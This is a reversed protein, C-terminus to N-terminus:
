HNTNAIYSDQIRGDIHIKGLNGTTYFICAIKEFIYFKFLHWVALIVKLTM